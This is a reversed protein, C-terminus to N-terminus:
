VGFLEKITQIKKITKCLSWQNRPADEKLLVIDSIRFNRKKTTLKDKKSLTFLNRAGDVGFNM